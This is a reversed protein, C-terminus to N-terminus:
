GGDVTGLWRSWGAAIVLRALADYGASGPHAGDGIVAESVWADTELLARAVAVYPVGRAHCLEAFRADLSLIAANQAADTVCPPGVVLAPVGGAAARDLISGLASVSESERVQGRDAATATDNVGFSFVARCDAGGALRPEAERWWRAAVQVSTEGRVGLNYATVPWGASAAEAAVRGVWGRGEPDGVGAVLSDGFFLIRQDISRKREM